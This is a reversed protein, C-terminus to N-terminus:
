RYYRPCRLTSTVRTGHHKRSAAATQTIGGGGGDDGNVGMSFDYPQGENATSTFVAGFSSDFFANRDNNCPTGICNAGMTSSDFSRGNLDGTPTVNLFCDRASLFVDLADEEVM